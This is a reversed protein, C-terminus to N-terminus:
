GLVGTPEIRAGAYGPMPVLEPRVAAYHPMPLAYGTTGAPLGGSLSIGARRALLTVGGLTLPDTIDPSFRMLEMLLGGGFAAAEFWMSYQKTNTTRAHKVDADYLAGDVGGVAAGIMIPFIRVAM